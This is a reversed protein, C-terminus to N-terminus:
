RSDRDDPALQRSRLYARYQQEYEPPPSATSGADQVHGAHERVRDRRLQNGPRQLGLGRLWDDLTQQAKKGSADPQQAAARLDQWRQIFQDMEAKTWGLQKLLEPDSSRRRDKLYDLVM